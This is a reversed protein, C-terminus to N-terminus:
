RTQLDAAWGHRPPQVAPARRPLLGAVAVLSGAVVAGAAGIAVACAILLGSAAGAVAGAAGAIRARLTGGSRDTAAQADM